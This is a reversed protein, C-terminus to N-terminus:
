KVGESYKTKSSYIKKRLEEGFPFCIKARPSVGPILNWANFLFGSLKKKLAHCGLSNTTLIIIGFNITGILGEGKLLLTPILDLNSRM